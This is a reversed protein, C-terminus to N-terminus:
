AGTIRTFAETIASAERRLDKIVACSGTDGHPINNFNCVNSKKELWACSVKRCFDGAKKTGYNPNKVEPPTLEERQEDIIVLKLPKTKKRREARAKEEQLDFESTFIYHFNTYCFEAGKPPSTGVYLWDTGAKRGSTAPRYSVLYYYPGHKKGTRCGCIKGCKKYKVALHVM